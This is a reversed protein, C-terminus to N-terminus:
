KVAIESIQVQWPRQCPAVSDGLSTIFLLVYRGTAAGLDFRTDGAVADQASAVAGGWGDLTMHTADSVYVTANWGGATPSTVVLTHGSAPASLEFVLGVGPKPALNRDSYCVTSWATDPRGDTLYGLLEPNERGDGNPPPDFEGSSVVIASAPAVSTVTTTTTPAPKGTIVDRASRV